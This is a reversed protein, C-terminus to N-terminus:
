LVIPDSSFSYFRFGAYFIRNRGIIEQLVAQGVKGQRARFPKMRGLHQLAEGSEYAEAIRM